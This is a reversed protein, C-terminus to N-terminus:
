IGTDEIGVELLGIWSFKLPECITLVYWGKRTCLFPNVIEKLVIDSFGEGWGGRAFYSTEEKSVTLRIRRTDMYVEYLFSSGM